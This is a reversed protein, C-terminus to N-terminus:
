EFINYFYIGEIHGKRDRALFISIYARLAVIAWKIDWVSLGDYITQEQYSKCRPYETDVDVDRISIVHIYMGAPIKSEANGEDGCTDGIWGAACNCTFSNVGDICTGGNQCSNASCDNIDSSFPVCDVVIVDVVTGIKDYVGWLFFPRVVKPALLKCDFLIDM